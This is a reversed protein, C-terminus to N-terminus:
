GETGAVSFSAMLGGDAREAVLSHLAWLGPNDAVFALSAAAGAAIVASDQWTGSDPGDAPRWCHGHLHVPQAFATRNEIDLRITDGRNATFLPEPAPGAIGNIAWGKGNELLARLDREVGDLKASKLGGKIGGELVVKVARVPAGAGPEAVPNPPLAFNDASAPPPAGPEAPILYAIEVVDEFLNLAVRIEGEEPSVLLDARQGPALALGNGGEGAPKVPQGDRAIVLPDYGKFLLNMTRVNAANVLRLRTFRGAALPLQPRYRNNVTFWNGLRGEGVMTEIDGFNRDIRGQDDLKWDDLVMVLEALEAVPEREAVIFAAHLGMDRTRSQDAIPALWFTGADPPTFVCDVAHDAGPPLNITMLDAPGRVGFFHLWIEHDLDSILRLKFEQGQTGRLVAPEPGPGLLWAETDSGAEVLRLSAPRARLEIFGDATLAEAVALRPTMMAAAVGLLQRRNLFM